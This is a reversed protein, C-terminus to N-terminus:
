DIRHPPGIRPIRGNLGISRLYEVFQPSSLYFDIVKSRTTIRPLSDDYRLDKIFLSNMDKIVNIRWRDLSTATILPVSNAFVAACPRDAM